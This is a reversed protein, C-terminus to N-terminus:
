TLRMVYYIKRAIEQFGLKPYYRMCIENQELTEIRVLEMGKGKLYGLAKDMLKTGIGQGQYGPMVAFNMIRGIKAERDVRTTIYGVVEGEIEAVFVGEPNVDCDDDIDKIKREYWRKGGIPGFLREINQDISVGDFAKATIERIKERDSERFSRIRTRM